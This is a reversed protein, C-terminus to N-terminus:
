QDNICRPRILVRPNYVTTYKSCTVCSRFTSCTKRRLLGLWSGQSSVRHSRRHKGPASVGEEQCDLFYSRHVSRRGRLSTKRERTKTLHLNDFESGPFVREKSLRKERRQGWQQALAFMSSALSSTKLVCLANHKPWTWHAINAQVKALSKQTYSCYKTVSNWCCRERTTSSLLWFTYRWM